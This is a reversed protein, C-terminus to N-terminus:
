YITTVNNRKFEKVIKEIDVIKQFRAIKILPEILMTFLYLNLFNIPTQITNYLSGIKYM